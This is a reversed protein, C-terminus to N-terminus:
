TLVTWDKRLTFNSNGDNRAYKHFFLKGRTPVSEVLHLPASDMCHIVEATSIAPVWDTIRPCDGAVLVPPGGSIDHLYNCVGESYRNFVLSCPEALPPTERGDVPVSYSKWRCEFDVEAADYFDRDFGRSHRGSHRARMGVSVVRYYLWEGPSGGITAEAPHMHLPPPTDGIVGVVQVKPLDSFMHRVSPLNHEYCPVAIRDYRQALERVLGNCIIADGLGLNWDLYIRGPSNRNPAHKYGVTRYQGLVPVVKNGTYPM